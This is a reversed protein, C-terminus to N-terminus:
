NNRRSQSPGSGEKVLRYLRPGTVCNPFRGWEWKPSGVKINAHVERNYADESAEILIAKHVIQELSTHEPSIGWEILCLHTSQHIGNWFAQIVAWKNVDPFCSALKNIDRVFDRIWHKGQSANSLQACLRDKFDPLFCYDFLAEYMAWVGWTDKCRAIFSMFFKGATGTTYKILLNM